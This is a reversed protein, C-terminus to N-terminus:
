RDSKGQEELWDAAMRFFEDKFDSEVPSSIERLMRVARAFGHADGALFAESLEDSNCYTAVTMSGGVERLRKDTYEEAARKVEPNM